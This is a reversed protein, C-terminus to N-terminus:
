RIIQRYKDFLRLDKMNDYCINRLQQHNRLKKEKETEKDKDQEKGDDSESAEEKPLDLLRYTFLPPDSTLQQLYWILMEPIGLSGHFRFSPKEGPLRTIDELMIDAWHVELYANFREVFADRASRAPDNNKGYVPYKGSPNKQEAGNKSGSGANNDDDDSPPLLVFRPASEGSIDKVKKYQLPMSTYGYEESLVIWLIEACMVSYDRKKSDKESFIFRHITTCRTIIRDVQRASLGSLLATFFASSDFNDRFGSYVANDLSNNIADKDFLNFYKEYKAPFNAMVQGPDLTLEFSILKRLYDDAETAEGFIQKISQQLQEKDISLIVATNPLDFFLHHLRELVKIAYSPLCRDLEDVIIVLTYEDSLKELDERVTKIVRNLSHNPDFAHRSELEAKAEESLNNVTAIASIIQSLDLGYKNKLFDTAANILKPKLEKCAQKLLEVSEAPIPQAGDICDIISTLIAILPEDYFDYKWCNYNFLLFRADSGDSNGSKRADNKKTLQEQLMRLVFSKGIGWKGNLAFTYSSKSQSITELLQIVDDIFPQRGRNDLIKEETKEKADTAQDEQTTKEITQAKTELLATAADKM